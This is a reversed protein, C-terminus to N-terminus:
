DLQYGLLERRAFRAQISEKDKELELIRRCARKIAKPARIEHIEADADTDPEAYQLELCFDILADSDSDRPFTYVISHTPKETTEDPDALEARLLFPQAALICILMTWFFQKM